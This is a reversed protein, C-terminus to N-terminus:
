ETTKKKKKTSGSSQAQQAQDALEQRAKVADPPDVPAICSRPLAQALKQSNQLSQDDPLTKALQAARAKLQAFKADDAIPPKVDKDVDAGLAKVRKEAAEVRSALTPHDSTIASSTDLGMKIMQRFFDAFHEPRWGALTYFKFGYEDAQAEDKRTFGMNLFQGGAAGATAGTGAAALKNDKGGLAYGAVGGVLAGAVLTEMQHQMGQAVHRCYVHGYEHAMVAALENESTCQQFLENYIYMHEGGTTFANLTKSNVLHFKMQNSFMWKNDQSKDFHAPPGVHERDLEQAAAIIRDGVQQLYSSLQPDEMVAPQLAKHEDAAQAMVSQDKPAFLSCGTSCFLLTSLCSICLLRVILHKNM